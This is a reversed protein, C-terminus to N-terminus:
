KYGINKKFGTWVNEHKSNFLPLTRIVGLAAEGATSFLLWPVDYSLHPDTVGPLLRLRAESGIPFTATVYKRILVQASIRM